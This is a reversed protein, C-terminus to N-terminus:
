HGKLINNPIVDNRGLLLKRQLFIIRLSFGRDMVDDSSSFKLNLTGACAERLVGTLTDIPLFVVVRSM